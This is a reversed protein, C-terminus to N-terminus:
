WVLGITLGVPVWCFAYSQWDASANLLFSFPMQYSSVKGQWGWCGANDVDKIFFQIQQPNIITLLPKWQYLFYDWHGQASFFTYFGFHKVQAVTQAGTSNRLKQPPRTEPFNRSFIAVKFSFFVQLSRISFKRRKTQFGSVLSKIPLDKILQPLHECALTKEEKQYAWFIPPAPHPPPWGLSYSM